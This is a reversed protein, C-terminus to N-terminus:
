RKRKLENTLNEEPTVYITKQNEYIVFGPKAGNPKKVHKILTYDVPVQSSHKAKSYYAALMAAEALTKDGYDKAKIVVHSGPIDKTHLWTDNPTALKHTLYENQKNNKGVYITIGETSVFQEIEPNKSKKRNQKKRDRLYGQESLEERIDEIDNTNASELQTLIADLYEIEENTKAIQGEIYNLSNKLKNYKKFYAQANESPNKIPDLVISIEAQDESYYNIVTAVKDGRKIQHMNATVLEGYLKYKEAEKADEIDQLLYTIKKENKEKENILFKSLDAAKQRVTDREAKYSYFVDLCKNISEFTEGAESIHKLPFISFDSKDKNTVITPQYENKEAKVMWSHFANWLNEKTPLKAEFLIEKAISPSTGTFLDVLQKDIKGGNFDILSTFQEKTTKLPNIKNQEPPSIYQRGPLIQRYSSIAPTVHVIGDLIVGNEPNLLIINSHRGMLEIILRKTHLDGLEDRVKIDIQIIRELDIQRIDEIIGGEIHKRLLMCFMPPEQPNIYNKDTLHIRPYTPNASILLSHNKGFSRISFVLDTQHPQYIKHIRGNIIEKSLEHVIARTVFGDIAM